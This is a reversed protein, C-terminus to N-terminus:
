KKDRKEPFLTVEVYNNVNLYMRAARQVTAADLSRYLDPLAWINTVDEGSQYAGVIEGLLYRDERSNTEFERLFGERIDRMLAVSPGETKLGDIEQFVRRILEDTRQPDCGFEIAVSYEAQPARDFRPNVSPSYVGGLQQRLSDLLRAELAQTLARLVVRHKQDYEFPGTFVIAAQSKPAIGKEVRKEIVGTATKAGIDKWTEHRRRSPLSGLYREVLPRMAAVDFSGVFVFTFNSADAFREKYFTLSRSLDWRDLDAPTPLRRRPHNQGLTDTLMEVFAYEPDAAQNALASKAQALQVAFATPDARPQTFTLYVLQFMTELDKPASSGLLGTEIDGIFPRVAAVKGTMVKQLDTASLSGLGGAAIVQAATSAPIYDKADALSTGGPSTARMLIEDAHNTTPKLVVKVGNSLEWETIDVAAKTTTRAISGAVPVTNLLAAGGASDVYANLSKGAEEKIVGSLRAENPIAMGTREPANVLVIRNRDQFWDRARTNVEALTIQPLFRKHLEYEDAVTPVPEQQLFNRIYEEARSSSERSDQGAVIREYGRLLNAKLRDFETQTFGFRAAREAETLLADMGREVGEDKVLAGLVAQERTRALFLGRGVTTDLFPADPKQTLEDLRASLMGEFLRDIMEERYEGITGQVRAPLLNEIEVTTQTAEKDTTIAFRTGPQEPVDYTPRPRPSAPGTLPGFHKKILAEVAATDFDGVAVVGLLDPRYWNAYFRKLVEPQFHQVVEMLGIPIRAAYRSDKLLIPFEKDRIRAQAGLGLRWEETIVGREKEIEVPDFTVNHAWDELILLSRDLVELTDTPVQLMFVTEDFSTYANVHAGFKMGLSQMFAIIDQKPFHATGDFAMHEVFHALGRQDEDELVSGAKVVLRLEARAGPRNNGRVYYRVGNPLTGIKVFPDVPMAQTLPATQIGSSVPAPTSAPRQAGAFTTAVVIVGACLFLLLHTRRRIIMCNAGDHGGM